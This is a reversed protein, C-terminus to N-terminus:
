IRWDNFMQDANKTELKSGMVPPKHFEVFFIASGSAVFLKFLRPYLGHRFLGIGLMMSYGRALRRGTSAPVFNKGVPRPKKRCVASRQSITEACRLGTRHM